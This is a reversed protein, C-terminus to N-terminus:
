FDFSTKLYWVWDGKHRLTECLDANKQDHRLLRTHDFAVEGSITFFNALRRNAYVSWKLHNDRNQDWDPDGMRAIDPIPQSKKYYVEQYSNPIKSGYYEVEVSLVDLLKFAPFNFGVVVPV